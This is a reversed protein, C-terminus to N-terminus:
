DLNRAVLPLTLTVQYRLHFGDYEKSGLLTFVNCTRGVMSLVRVPREKARQRDAEGRWCLTRWSYSVRSGEKAAM